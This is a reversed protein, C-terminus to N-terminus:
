LKTRMSGVVLFKKTGRTATRELVNGIFVLKYFHKTWMSAVYNPFM